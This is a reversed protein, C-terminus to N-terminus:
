FFGKVGLEQLRTELRVRLSILSVDEGGAPTSIANLLRLVGLLAFREADQDGLQEIWAEAALACALLGKDSWNARKSILEFNEIFVRLMRSAEIDTLETNPRAAFSLDGLLERAAVEPSGWLENYFGILQVGLVRAPEVTDIQMGVGGFLTIAPLGSSARRTASM